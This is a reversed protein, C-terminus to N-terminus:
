RNQSRQNQHRYQVSKPYTGQKSPQQKTPPKRVISTRGSTQPVSKKQSLSSKFNLSNAAVLPKQPLSPKMEEGVKGIAKIEKVKEVLNIGFLYDDTTRKELASVYPKSLTPLICAKRAVTQSRQVEILLKAAEWVRELNEKSDPDKSPVLSQIVPALAALASGALKQTACFYKDRKLASKKLNVAVEENLIPAEFSLKGKRPYKGLLGDKVEKKMGESLYNKWRNTISSHLILEPEARAPEEGFIRLGDEDLIWPTETETPKSNQLTLETNDDLGAPPVSGANATENSVGQVEQVVSSDQEKSPEPPPDSEPIIEVVENEKLRHDGLQDDGEPDSPDGESVESMGNRGLIARHIADFKRAMDEM